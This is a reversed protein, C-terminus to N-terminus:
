FWTKISFYFSRKAAFGGGRGERYLKDTLNKINLQATVTHDGIIFEYALMTDWVTFDPVVVIAQPDGSMRASDNHRLGLGLSLGNLLGDKFQFRNWLSITNEPTYDLPQGINDENDSKVTEANLVHAWGLLIQYNSLVSWNLDLELGESKQSNGFIYYPSRGTENQHVRDTYALNERDINYYSFTSSLRSDLYQTKIGVDVSKSQVPESAIGDADVNYNPEISRSYSAFASVSPTVKYLLGLQPTWDGKADIVDEDSLGDASEGSLSSNEIPRSYEVDGSFRNYRLGYLLHLKEQLLQSQGAFFYGENVETKDRYINFEQEGEALADNVSIPEDTAPNHYIWGGYVADNFLNEDDLYGPRRLVVRQYEQGLQWTHKGGSFNFRWTLKNDFNYSHRENNWHETRFRLTGDWYSIYIPVDPGTQTQRGEVDEHAYNLNTQWALSDNIKILYELDVTQSEFTKKADKSLSSCYGSPDESGYISAFTNFYPDNIDDILGTAYLYAATAEEPKLISKIFDPTVSSGPIGYLSEILSALVEPVDDNGVFASHSIVSGGYSSEYFEEREMSELDIILRQNDSIEWLMSAGLYIEERYEYPRDGKKNLGGAGIRIALNDSVRYNQFVEGKIFDNSGVTVKVDTMTDTLEPRKTIYNIVGGPRVAGFFIGSAGKVVEVRDVNWTPFFQRRYQGNRYSVLGNFGRIIFESDGRASVVVGPVRSLAERMEFGSTDEILQATIISIPLPTDLIDTGIGTATISNAAQYANVVDGTVYFEDLLIINGLDSDDSEANMPLSLSELLALILCSFTLLSLITGTKM